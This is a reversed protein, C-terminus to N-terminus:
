GEAGSLIDRLKFLAQEIPIAIIGDHYEKHDGGYFVYTKAMPYDERFARLGVLDKASLRRKRKVEFAHLGHEGYAVFDVELQNTTRWFYFQYGLRYYDNLAVLHQLVLTELAAGDIEDTSDLPGRPRIARYVGVDFYYFKSNAVMRRKARKTFVPLTYSLLLDDVIDFYASVVRRDIMADRAIESYNVTEGQSFSAVQLFRAFDGMNRTLGEQQVEERLYTTIYTELYHKPDDHSSYVFPLLGYTLAKTLDFDAGLEYCTLPHMHYQFARGALLNVGKRRLSRASSGTLLFRYGKSEILRHVENLLTPVKQIEDIVIWESTDPPIRNALDAPNVLFQGYTTNDLLDLYLSDPFSHQIWSTKGTGRPGFLFASHRTEDPLSLLRQYNKHNKM